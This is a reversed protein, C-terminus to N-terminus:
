PNQIDKWTLTRGPVGIKSLGSGQVDSGPDKLVLVYTDLAVYGLKSVVFVSYM